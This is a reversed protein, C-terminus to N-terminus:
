AREITLSGFMAGLAATDPHGAPVRVVDAPMGADLRAPLVVSAGGRGVRVRGGEQLGLRAWLAAPLTAVPPRADATQQLSPARRVLPDAGYIPVDAIREVGGAAADAAVDAPAAAASVPRNSLRQALAAVDGLAEDRVEESTEHAFGALGLLNGLVRLV